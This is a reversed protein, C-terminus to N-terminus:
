VAIIGIVGVITLKTAVNYDRVRGRCFCSRRISAVLVGCLFRLARIVRTQEGRFRLAASSNYPDAGVRTDSSGFDWCRLPHSRPSHHITFPSHHITDPFGSPKQITPRQLLRYPPARERRFRLAASSDYPLPVGRQPSTVFHCLSIGRNPSIDAFRVFPNGNESLSLRRRRPISRGYGKWDIDGLRPVSRDRRLTCRVRTDLATGQM